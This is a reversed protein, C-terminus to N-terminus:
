NNSEESNTNNIARGGSLLRDGLILRPNTTEFFRQSPEFSAVQATPETPNESVIGQKSWNESVIKWNYFEDQKLYITKRGVDEITSSKYEQKFTAMIYDGGQLLSLDKIQVDPQGPQAFVAKKYTRFASISGKKPDVFEQHYSNIYDNLNESRWAEAWNEIASVIKQRKEDWRDKSLYTLEHVVIIPTRNLEIYRAIDILDSNATVICGRSDLGKEIRTEDNTSHLWIGGGTKGKQHDIPNPYNLVFAGVGYIEGQKGHRNLLDQHTLFETLYYVGEPTRHDGQFAKDGAKKGTAMQYRKVLEPVGDKNKFIYLNHTSKEAVIVHHAFFQDLGLLPAPKVLVKEETLANPTYAVALGIILSSVSRKLRNIASATM